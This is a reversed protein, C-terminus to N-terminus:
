IAHPKGNVVYLLVVRINGRPGRPTMKRLLHLREIPFIEYIDVKQQNEDNRDCTAIVTQCFNQRQPRYLNCLQQKNVIILTSEIHSMWDQISSSTMINNEIM